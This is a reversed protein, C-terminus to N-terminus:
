WELGLGTLVLGGRRLLALSTGQVREPAQKGGPKSAM